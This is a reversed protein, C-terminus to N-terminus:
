ETFGLKNKLVKYVEPPENKKLWDPLVRLAIEKTFKKAKKIHYDNKIKEFVFIGELSPSQLLVRDERLIERLRQIEKNTNANGPDEDVLVYTEIGFSRLIEAIPKIERIGGCGVITINHKNLDVGLKELALTCAIKDDPGEVLVVKDAFFVENLEENFKSSAKISDFDEVDFNYRYAKTSMGEKRIICISKYDEIRVFSREHTTYIIQVGKDSLFKLLKYFHRCGHPHLYLEPEEIALILPQRIVEAYVRAIAIAVASQVGAGELEVDVEFDPSYKLIPRLDRLINTPDIISLKLAIDLGTQEKVFNKLRKEIKEVHPLIKESFAREVDSKFGNKIDNGIESAIHRLLKGYIKWQSPTIQQHAQRDLPLYMMIVEDRMKNSVNLERTNGHKDKYTLVNGKKDVAIYRLSSGDYTLRFGCVNPYSSLPEGFQVEIAIEEAKDYLYFDHDNFARVSPYTEGVVLNLAALINSKGSSNPGILANFKTLELELYKISRFNKITVKKIM